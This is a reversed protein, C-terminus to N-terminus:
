KVYTFGSNSIYTYEETVTDIKYCDRYGYRESYDVGNEDFVNYEWMNGVSIPFYRCGREFTPAVCYCKLERSYPLINSDNPFARKSKILGVDPCYWHELCELCEFAEKYDIISGDYNPISETIKIHICDKFEGAETLVTENKSLIDYRRNVLVGNWLYYEHDLYGNELLSNSYIVQECEFCGFFRHANKVRKQKGPIDWGYNAQSSVGDKENKLIMCFTNLISYEGNLHGIKELMSMSDLAASSLARTRVTDGVCCNVGDFSEIRNYANIAINLWERANSYKYSKMKHTSIWFASESCLAFYNMSQAMEYVEILMCLQKEDYYDFCHSFLYEAILRRNNTLRAYAVSKEGDIIAKEKDTTALARLRYIEALLKYEKELAEFEGIAKDLHLIAVPSNRIDIAKKANSIYEKINNYIDVKSISNNKKEMMYILDGKLKKRGEYLRSKITGEPVSLLSSIDSISKEALYFLTVTEAIPKSLNSIANYLETNREKDCLEEDVGRVAIYENDELPTYYKTQRLKKMSINRAVGCLWSGIKEKDIIKGYNFYLQIFTEQVVDDIEFNYRLYAYATGYVISKYKNILQKLEEEKGNFRYM